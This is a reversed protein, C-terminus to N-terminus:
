AEIAKEGVGNEKKARRDGLLELVGGQDYSGGGLGPQPWNSAVADTGRPGLAGQGSCIPSRQRRKLHPV